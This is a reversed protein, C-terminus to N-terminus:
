KQYPVNYHAFFQEVAQTLLRTTKTLVALKWTTLHVELSLRRWWKDSSILWRMEWIQDRVMSKVHGVKFPRVGDGDILQLFM